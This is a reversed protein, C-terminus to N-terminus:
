KVGFCPDAGDGVGAFDCGLVLPPQLHRAMAALAGVPDALEGLEGDSGAGARACAARGAAARPPGGKGLVASGGYGSRQLRSAPWVFEKGGVM